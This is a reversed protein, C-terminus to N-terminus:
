TQIYVLLTKDLGRKKRVFGEIVNSPLLCVRHWVQPLVGYCGPLDSDNVLTLMQQYPFKLFCRGFTM